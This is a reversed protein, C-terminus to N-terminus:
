AAVTWVIYYAGVRAFAVDIGRSESRRASTFAAKADSYIRQRRFQTAVDDATTQDVVTFQRDYDIATM